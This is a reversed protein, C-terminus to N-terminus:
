GWATEIHGRFITNAAVLTSSAGTGSFYLWTLCAGDYIRPMSPTQYVFERETPQSVGTTLPITCIPRALCLAATGNARATTFSINNVNKVGTDGNVLPFYLSPLGIGPTSSSIQGVRPLSKGPITTITSTNDSQNVYSCNINYTGSAPAATTVLYLRCGVGNTYRLSPTGILTQTTTVGHNIGPWYGQLDVLVLVGGTVPLGAPPHIAAANILHKTEPSVNGGHPIGFIQTGNGTSEDCTAWNLDTGPFLNVSGYSGPSSALDIGVTTSATTATTQNVYQWDARHIKEQSIKSVLDDVSSFGM